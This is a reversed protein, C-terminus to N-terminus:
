LRADQHFMCNQAPEFLADNRDINTVESFYVASSWKRIFRFASCYFLLNSTSLFTKITRFPAGVLLCLTWHTLSHHCKCLRLLKKTKQSIQQNQMIGKIEEKKKRKKKEKKEPQRLWYAALLAVTMQFTTPVPLAAPIRKIVSLLILLWLPLSEHSNWQYALSM